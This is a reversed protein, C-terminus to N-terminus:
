YFMGEIQWGRVIRGLEKNIREAKMHKFNMHAPRGGCGLGETHIRCGMEKEM